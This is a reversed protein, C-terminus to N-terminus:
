LKGAEILAALSALHKCHGAYAFGKCECQRDQGNRALFCSYAEETRDSGSTLKAVLFGRGDWGTPFETVAYSTYVRKQKITLVGAPVFGQDSEIPTWDFASGKPESKTPPLLDTYVPM